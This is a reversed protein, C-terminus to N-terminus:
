GKGQPMEAHHIREEHCCIYHNAEPDWQRGGCGQQQYHWRCRRLPYITIVGCPTKM